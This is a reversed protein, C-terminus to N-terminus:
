RLRYGFYKGYHYFAHPIEGCKIFDNKVACKISGQNEVNGDVEVLECTGPNDFAVAVYGQRVCYLAQANRDPYKYQHCNPNDLDPEGALLEKPHMSGPFCLVGPFPGNGNSPKLILVPVASFSDPYFEWRELTYGDRPWSELMVPDPQPTAEPMRLLEILKSRLSAKWEELREKSNIIEADFALEPKSARMSAFLAGLSGMYRGDARKPKFNKEWTLM